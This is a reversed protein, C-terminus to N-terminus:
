HIAVRVARMLASRPNRWSCPRVSGRHV